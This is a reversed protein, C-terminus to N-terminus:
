SKKRNEYHNMLKQLGVELSVLERELLNKMKTTDPCRRTMDGEKLAPLHIIESTSGTQAIVAKALDLVTMEIDSGVNLVENAHAESHL